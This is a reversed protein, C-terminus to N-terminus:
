SENEQWRLHAQKKEEQEPFWIFRTSETMNKQNVIESFREYDNKNAFHVILRKWSEQNEHEYEPMGVWEANPDNPKGSKSNDGEPKYEDVEFSERFSDAAEQWSDIVSQPVGWEVVSDLNWKEFLKDGDWDGFHTNDKIIIEREEADTFQDTVIATIETWGLAKAALFRQNGCLVVNQGTRNSVVIPRVEMMAPLDTLSQKLGELGDDDIRRPNDAHQVLTSIPLKVPQM